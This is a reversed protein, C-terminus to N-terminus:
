LPLGLSELKGIVEALDDLLWPKTLYAVAGLSLAKERDEPLDSSSWVVVPLSKLKLQGRKWELFEFGTIRPMKLDLLITSPLPFRTRDAYEGEGNLYDIAQEGDELFHIEVTLHAKAFLRPVLLPFAEDDDVFLLM